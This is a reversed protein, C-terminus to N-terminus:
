ADVRRFEMGFFALLCFNYQDIRYEEFLYRQLNVRVLAVILVSAQQSHDPQLSDVDILAQNIVTIRHGIVATFAGCAGSGM